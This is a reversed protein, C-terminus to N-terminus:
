CAAAGKGVILDDRGHREHSGRLGASTQWITRSTLYGCIEYRNGYGIVRSTAGYAFGTQFPTGSPILWSTGRLGPNPADWVSLGGTGALVWVCGSVDTRCEIDPDPYKIRVNEMKPGSANGMRYLNTTTIGM